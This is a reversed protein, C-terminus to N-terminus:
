AFQRKAHLLEALEGINRPGFVETLPISLGLEQLTMVVIDARDMSNAGLDELVDTPQFERGRLQPLIEVVMRTIVEFVTERTM